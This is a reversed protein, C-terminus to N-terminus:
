PQNADDHEEEYDDDDDPEDAAVMLPQDLPSANAIRDDNENDPPQASAGTNASGGGLHIPKHWNTMDVPHRAVFDKLRSEVSAAKAGPVRTGFLTLIKRGMWVEPTWRNALGSSSVIHWLGRRPNSRVLMMNSCTRNLVAALRDYIPRSRDGNDRLLVVVDQTTYFALRVAIPQGKYRWVTGHPAGASQWINYQESRYAMYVSRLSDSRRNMRRGQFFGNLLISVKNTM